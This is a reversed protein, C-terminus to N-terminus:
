MGTEEGKEEPNAALRYLEFGGNDYVLEMRSRLEPKIEERMYDFEQASPMLVYDAESLAHGGVDPAFGARGTNLYLLRPKFFAIVAEEQTNRYIYTFMDTMEDSYADYRRSAGGSQLHQVGSRVANQATGLVALALLAGFAARVVWQAAPHKALVHVLYSGGYAAFLLLLPLVNYLYRIGQFYPLLYLVAFTGITLATLHLNERLGHTVVGILVLAYLVFRAYGALPMGTPLMQVIWNKIENDYALINHLIWWNPGGAIHADNSTAEPLYIRTMWGLAAMTVAVAAQRWAGGPHCVAALFFCLSAAELWHGVLLAPFPFQGIDALLLSLIGAGCFYFALSIGRRAM